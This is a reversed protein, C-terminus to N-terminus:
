ACCWLRDWPQGCGGQVIEPELELSRYRAAQPEDEWQTRDLVKLVQPPYTVPYPSSSPCAWLFVEYFRYWRDSGLGLWGLPHEALALVQALHHLAWSGGRDACGSNMYGRGNGNECRRHDCALRGAENQRSGWSEGGNKQYWGPM